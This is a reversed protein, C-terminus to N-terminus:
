TRNTPNRSNLKTPLRSSRHCFTSSAENHLETTRRDNKKKNVKSAKYSKFNESKINLVPVKNHMQKRDIGVTPPICLADAAKNIIGTPHMNDFAIGLLCLRSRALKESTNPMTLLWKLAERDTRIIFWKRIVYPRLLLM